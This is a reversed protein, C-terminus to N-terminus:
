KRHQFPQVAMQNNGATFVALTGFRDVPGYLVKLRGTDCGFRMNVGTIGLLDNGCADLPQADVQKDHTRVPM